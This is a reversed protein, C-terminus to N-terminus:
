TRTPKLFASRFAATLAGLAMLIGGAWIWRVFPHEYLRASWSGDEFPEGLAIYIDRSWTVEIATETIPMPQAVYFRKEPYLRHHGDVIFEAQHSVYNTGESARM